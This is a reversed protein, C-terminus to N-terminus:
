EHKLCPWGETSIAWQWRRALSLLEEQGFSSTWFSLLAQSDLGGATTLTCPPDEPGKGYYSKKNHTM